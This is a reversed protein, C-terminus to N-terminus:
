ATREKKKDVEEKKGEKKERTIQVSIECSPDLSISFM